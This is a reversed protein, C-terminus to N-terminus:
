SFYGKNAFVQAHRNGDLSKIRGDMTDTSWEGALTKRYFMRDARYRRTLPLIASRVFNQTTKKLTQMAQPISICWREALDTPSVDTHRNGTTFSPPTPVDTLVELDGFM